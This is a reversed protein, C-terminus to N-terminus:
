EKSPSKGWAFLKPIKPLRSTKEEGIMDSEPRLATVRWCHIKEDKGKIEVAGLEEAEIFDKVKDFTNRDIIIDPESTVGQLRSAINVTDGITTLSNLRRSGVFGLVFEGTAVGFGAKLTYENGKDDRLTNFSAERMRWAARVAHWEANELPLPAGFIVMIGDGLFKDITGSEEFVIRIQQELHQDLLNIVLAPDHKGSFRTFGRIDGFVVTGVKLDPKSEESQRLMVELYAPSVNSAWKRYLEGRELWAVGATSLLMIISPVVFPVYVQAKAFLLFVTAVFGVQALLIIAPGRWNVYHRVGFVALSGFLFVIIAIELPSAMRVFGNQLLANLFQAQMVVGFVERTTQAGIRELTHHSYATRFIDSEQAALEVDTVGIFVAKGTFTGPKFNGTYVAEYRVIDFTRAGGPFDIYTSGVNNESFDPDPIDPGTRPITHGGVLSDARTLHIDDRKGGHLALFGAVPLATYGENQFYQVPYLTRVIGDAGQLVDVFAAPHREFDVGTTEDHYPAIVQKQINASGRNFRCAMMAKDGAAKLAADFAKDDATGYKSPGDMLIDFCVVKAGDALLNKLVQAHYARPPPWRANLTAATTSEFGVVAIRPDPEIPGRWHFLTDYGNWEAQRVPTLFPEIYPHTREPPWTFACFLAVFLPFALALARRFATSHFFKLM